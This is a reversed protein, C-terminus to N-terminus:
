GRKRPPMKQDYDGTEGTATLRAEINEVIDYLIEESTPSEAVVVLSPKNSSARILGWSGDELVFRVGNVTILDTIRKGGIKAGAALDKRYLETVADTVAYKREDACHVGMTPSQFTRPLSAALEGLTKGERDLMRLLQAAGNMADDYGRGYPPNFFWHGSREFGALANQEAVAAKVYSHGTKVLVVEAGAGRLVEDTLYLGTSKVDIVIKRGPRERALSRSVLLGAKDSFVERGEGDVLGIRDGDGDIGIGIEAKHERVAAGIAHLFAVDEPNPNFRPFTWDLDTDVEVVEAGLARLVTPAFRGATGNGTALVVRMPRALRGPKSVEAVYADFVGDATEYRGAGQTFKGGLVVRKFQQIGEPGLTSSLGSALKLGTWGNENHSATVMAGARLGLHHQAFYLLPTLALGIDVVKVGASLLGVTFSRALDQSYSRFDHGLAVAEEGLVERAYTGYARGLVLFGNPNVETGLRWRVDYERFGNDTILTQEFYAASNAAVEARVSWDM